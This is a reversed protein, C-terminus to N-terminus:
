SDRQRDRTAVETGGDTVPTPTGDTRVGTSAAMAQEIAARDDSGGAVIVLPGNTPGYVDMECGRTSYWTDVVEVVGAEQLRDLHYVTNQLSTDLSEALESAPAPTETLRELISRATESTLVEMIEGADKLAVTEASLDTDVSGRM